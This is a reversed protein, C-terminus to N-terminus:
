VKHRELLVRYHHAIPRRVCACSLSRWGFHQTPHGAMAIRRRLVFAFARFRLSVRLFRLVGRKYSSAKRALGNTQLANYRCANAQTPLHTPKARLDRGGREGAQRVIPPMASASIGLQARLYKQSLFPRSNKLSPVRCTTETAAPSNPIKATRRQAFIHTNRHSFITNPCVPHPANPIGGAFSKGKQTRARAM